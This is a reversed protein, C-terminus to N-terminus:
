LEARIMRFVGFLGFTNNLMDGQGNAIINFPM